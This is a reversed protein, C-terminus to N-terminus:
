KFSKQPPKSRSIKKCLVSAKSDTFKCEAFLAFHSLDSSIDPLQVPFTKFKKTQNQQDVPSTIKLTRLIFM